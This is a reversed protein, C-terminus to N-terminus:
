QENYKSSIGSIFADRIYEEEYVLSTAPLRFQCPKALGRLTQLFSDISQGPEQKQTALIHRAYVVNVPKEYLGNLIDMASNFTTEECFYEYVDPEVYNILLELKYDGPAPQEVGNEDTVTPQAIKGLFNQFCRKWYKWKKEANVDTHVTAFKEPRLLRDM